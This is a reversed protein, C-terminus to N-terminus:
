SRPTAKSSRCAPSAVPRGPRDRRAQPVRPRLEPGPPRPHVRPRLDDERVARDRGIRSVVYLTKDDPSYLGAVQSGLLEVYLMSLSADAPLLGFAKLIRENAALVDPPNDKAFSDAIYKKIGADDLIKPDVAAKPRSAASPRHGPGRDGRLDPGSRRRSGPSAAPTPSRPPPAAPRRRRAPPRPPPACTPSGRRPSRDAAAAVPLAAVAPESCRRSQRMPCRAVSSPGITRPEM